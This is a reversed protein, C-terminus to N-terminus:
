SRAAGACAPVPPDCARGAHTHPAPAPRSTVVAIKLSGAEYPCATKVSALTRSIPVSDIAEALAAPPAPPPPTQFSGVTVPDLVRLAAPREVSEIRDALSQDIALHVATERVTEVVRQMMRQSSSALHSGFGAVAVLFIAASVSKTM